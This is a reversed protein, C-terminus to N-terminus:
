SRKDVRSVVIEADADPSDTEDISEVRGQADRTQVTLPSGLSPRLCGSELPV